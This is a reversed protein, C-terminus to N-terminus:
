WVVWRYSIAFGLDWQCLGVIALFRIRVFCQRDCAYLVTVAGVHAFFMRMCGTDSTSLSCATVLGYGADVLSCLHWPRMRHWSGSHMLDNVISTLCVYCAYSLYVMHPMFLIQCAISTDLSVDLMYWICLYRSCCIRCWCSSTLAWAHIRTWLFSAKTMCPYPIAELAVDSM